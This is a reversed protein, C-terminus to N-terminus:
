SAAYAVTRPRSSTSPISCGCEARRQWATTRMACGAAFDIEIPNGAYAPPEFRTLYRLVEFAALSGLIGAVPGIGRNIRPKNRFLDMGALAVATDGTAQARDRDATLTMCNRCASRGPDVSWVIGQTVWIGARVYPVGRAVCAENVWDDVGDPSDVGSMVVDPCARDILALVDSPGDISAEIVDVDINPDFGRVWAAATEVKSRGIDSWRYLYQRAFNRAEVADRDTLTLRGVGLGCLHPITNSNLGGTGLVLVHSRGLRLQLDESSCALRAFSEFFAVNSFYRGNAQERLQGLRAGDELLGQQDLTDLAALVDDLPVGHGCRGSLDRALEEPTRGGERLLDLLTEVQGEPDAIVLSDRLDYVVQIDMGSRKWAVSKLQPLV